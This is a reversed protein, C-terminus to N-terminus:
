AKIYTWGGQVRDAIHAIANRTRRAQPLIAVQEGEGEFRAIARECAIFVVNAYSIELEAIRAAFPTRDTRLLDLGRNNVVIEVHANAHKELYAAVLDLAAEMHETDAHDLHVLMRGPQAVFFNSAWALASDPQEPASRQMQVGLFVGVVLMVGAALAGGWWGRSQSVRAPMPLAHRDYAHRVLDKSARLVCLRQAVEADVASAALIEEREAATLEDDVFANLQEESFKANM